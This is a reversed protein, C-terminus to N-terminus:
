TFRRWYALGTLGLLAPLVFDAGHMPAAGALGAIGRAVTVLGIVWLGWRRMRWYGVLTAAAAALAATTALRLGLSLTNFASWRAGIRLAGLVLALGGVFCVITLLLPRSRLPESNTM